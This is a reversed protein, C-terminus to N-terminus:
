RMSTRARKRPSYARGWCLRQLMPVPAVFLTFFFSSDTYCVIDRLHLPQRLMSLCAGMTRIAKFDFTKRWEASHRIMAESKALDWQRARLYRILAEANDFLGEWEEDDNRTELAESLQRHHRRRRHCCHRRRHYAIGRAVLVHHACYVLFNVYHTKHGNRCLKCAVKPYDTTSICLPDSAMRKRRGQCQRRLAQNCRTEGPEEHKWLFETRPSSGNHKWGLGNLMTGQGGESLKSTFKQRKALLDPCFIQHSNQKVHRPRGFFPCM